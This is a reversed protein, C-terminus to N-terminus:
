PNARPRKPPCSPLEQFTVPEMQLDLDYITDFQLTFTM